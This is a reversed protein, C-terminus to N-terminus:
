YVLGNKERYRKFVVCAEDPLVREIVEISREVPIRNRLIDAWDAPVPGEDFGGLAETEHVSAGVVLRRVGSWWVNGWCQICPQASTVLELRPLESAGLDFTGLVKQALALAMAEAHAISCNERRVSNVGPAILAGSEMEFVAAGFPGGTEEEVNHAALSIVFRMRDELSSFVQRPRAHKHVWDPLSVILPPFTSM